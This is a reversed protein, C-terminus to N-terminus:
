IRPGAETHRLGRLALLVTSGLSMRLDQSLTTKKKFIPPGFAVRKQTTGDEPM